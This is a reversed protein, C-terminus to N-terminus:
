RLQKQLYSARDTIEITATGDVKGAYFQHVPHEELSLHSKDLLSYNLSKIKNNKYIAFYSSDKAVLSLKNVDLNNIDYHGGGTITFKLSDSNSPKDRIVVDASNTNVSLVNNGEIEILNGSPASDNFDGLNSHKTMIEFSIFLTDNKVTTKVNDKYQKIVNVYNGPQHDANEIKIFNGISLRPRWYTISRRQISGGFGIIVIHKFPAMKQRALTNSEDLYYDRTFNGRKFENRLLINYAVLSIPICSFFIILLKTSTKM